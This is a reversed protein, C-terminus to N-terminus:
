VDITDESIVDQLSHADDDIANDKFIPKREHSGDEGLVAELGIALAVWPPAFNVVRRKGKLLHPRPINKVGQFLAIPQIRRTAGFPNLDGTDGLLKTAQPM